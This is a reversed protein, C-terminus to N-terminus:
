KINWLILIIKNSNEIRYGRDEVLEENKVFVYSSISNIILMKIYNSRALNNAAM